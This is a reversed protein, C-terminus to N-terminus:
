KYLPLLIAGMFALCPEAALIKSNRGETQVDKGYTNIERSEELDKLNESLDCM